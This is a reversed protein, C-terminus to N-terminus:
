DLNVNKFAKNLENFSDWGITWAKDNVNWICWWVDDFRITEESSLSQIVKTIQAIHQNNSRGPHDQEHMVQGKFAAISFYSIKQANALSRLIFLYLDADPKESLSRIVKEWDDAGISVYSKHM